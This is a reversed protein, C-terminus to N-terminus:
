LITNSEEIITFLLMAGSGGRRYFFSAQLGREREAHMEWRGETGIGTEEWNRKM